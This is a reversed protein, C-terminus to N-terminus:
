LIGLFGVASSQTIATLSMSSYVLLGRVEPDSWGGLGQKPLPKEADYWHIVGWGDGESAPPPVRAAPIWATGLTLFLAAAAAAARKPPIVRLAATLRKAIRRIPPPVHM